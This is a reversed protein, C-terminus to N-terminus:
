ATLPRRASSLAQAETPTAADPTPLRRSEPRLAWSAIALGLLVLPPALKDPGDGVHLHSFLAGTFDFAIGAYAWEKLRPARPALLAAVGLLKWTGLLTALYLPYGLHALTAVMRPAHALEMFIASGTLAFTLLGTTTWYAIKRSSMTNM